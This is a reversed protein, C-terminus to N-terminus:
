HGIRLVERGAEKANRMANEVQHHKKTLNEENFPMGGNRDLVREICLEKSTDLFAWVWRIGLKKDLNIYRSSLGSIILGEFIVNGVNSYKRILDCIRDQAKTGDKSTRISDAGGCKYEPNYKGVVFIPTKFIGIQTMEVKGYKDLIETSGYEKILSYIIYSKGAGSTGRINLIM